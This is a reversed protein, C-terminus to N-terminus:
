TATAYAILKYTLKAAAFACSEPGEGPSLESVDFGVIETGRALERLLGVLQGWSMGDPEPTDVAAMLSPDLVDVDISVYVRRTLHGMVRSALEALGSEEAPWFVVPLGEDAIFRHEGASLSRVGAHVIPCIDHLRRAVSAHGWSTGMYEQRLDAHADLYLVSLDPYAAAMAGVAGVAITHEGGLLGVLRGPSVVSAVVRRVREVMAEPSGVDPEVEPTTCIGVDSIDRGLELDYDELHRSAGIIAKPGHRAGGKYSTTADYPVPILVVRARAPDSEEPPVDLFTDWHRPAGNPQDVGADAM